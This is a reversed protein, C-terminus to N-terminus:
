ADARLVAVTVDDEAPGSLGAWNITDEIIGNLLEVASKDVHRLISEGLRERGYQEDGRRMELVGDTFMVVTDGPELKYPGREEWDAHAEVGLAMGTRKYDELARTGGHVLIPKPHGANAYLFQRTEPDVVCLFMSMFMDDGMDGSLHGNLRRMIRRPSELAQSYARLYARAGSMFLAPGAGHGSVDGVAMAIRNNKTKFFDFYDGGAETAPIVRGCMSLWDSRLEAGPFLNGQIESVLELDRQMRESKMREEMVRRNTWIISLMDAFAEFFRLDSKQFPRESARADVYIAGELVDQYKLPVCMVSRINLNIMSQSPDFKAGDDARKCVSKGTEMVGEIESKSWTSDKPLDTANAARGVRLSPLGDDGRTFLMGREAGVVQVARDVMSELLDDPAHQGSVERLSDILLRVRSSDRERDGTIYSTQSGDFFATSPDGGSGRRPSAPLEPAEDAPLPKKRRFLGSMPWLTGTAGGRAAEGTALEGCTRPM